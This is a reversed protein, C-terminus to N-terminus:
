THILITLFQHFVSIILQVYYKPKQQHRKKNNELVCHHSYTIPFEDINKWKHGANAHQVSQMQPLGIRDAALKTRSKRRRCGDRRGEEDMDAEEGEAVHAVQDPAAEMNEVEMHIGVTLCGLVVAMPVAEVAM